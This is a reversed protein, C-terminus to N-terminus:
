DGHKRTDSLGWKRSFKGSKHKYSTGFKRWSKAMGLGEM